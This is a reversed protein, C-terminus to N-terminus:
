PHHFPSTTICLKILIRWPSEPMALELLGGLLKDEGAGVGADIRLAEGEGKRGM